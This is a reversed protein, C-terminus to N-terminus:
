MSGGAAMLQQSRQRTSGPHPEIDILRARRITFEGYRDNIADAAQMLRKQREDAFLNL